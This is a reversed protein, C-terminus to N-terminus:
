AAGPEPGGGFLGVPAAVPRAAARADLTRRVADLLGDPRFPKAVVEATTDDLGHRVLADGFYGSMYLVDLDPRRRRLEGALAPGSMEPMVVDTLLLDVDVGPASGLALAEGPDAAALVHYGAEVLLIQILDRLEPQDEVVLVTEHGRAPPAAEPGPTIAEDGGLRPLVVTVTTGTGLESTLHLEGGLERAIQRATAMGLGTGSAKTTFFPEFVHARTEPAMGAGDDVVSVAVWRGAGAPRGGDRRDVVRTRITLAGASPMADRANLVLNLLIQELQGQDVMVPCPDAGLDLRVAIGEGAVSRVMRDLEAVITRVDVPRAAVAHPRSFALLRRSLAAGRQAATQINHIYGALEPRGASRWALMQSSAVIVTILSNFDHAVGGALRGVVDMKQARALQLDREALEAAQRRAATVDAVMAVAGGGPLPAGSVALTRDGDEVELVGVPGIEVRAWLKVLALVAPDPAVASIARGVADPEAVAFMVAAGASWLGVTGDRNIGIIAVPSADIVARLTDRSGVLERERSDLQALMATLAASLVGIEGGGRPRLAVREGRAIRRAVAALELMSRTLRRALLWAALMSLAALPLAIAVLTDLEARIQAALARNTAVLEVTGATRGESVIPVRVVSREAGVVHVEPVPPLWAPWPSGPGAGAHRYTAFLAGDDGYLAAREIDPFAAVRALIARADDRDGFALASVSSEGVVQALVDMTALRHERLRHVQEYGAITFGAALCALSLGLIVITIRGRLSLGSTSAMVYRVLVGHV